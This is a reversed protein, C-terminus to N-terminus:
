PAAQLAASSQIAPQKQVRKLRLAKEELLNWSAYAISYTAPISLLMLQVQTPHLLYVLLQQIPFGWIYIGYSLDGLRRVLGLVPYNLTGFYVVVPPLLLIALQSYGGRRLIFALVLLGIGVVIARTRTSPLPCLALTAGGFFLGSFFVLNSYELLTNSFTIHAHQLHLGLLVATAAVMAPLLVRRNHRLFFFCALVIYLLFEYGVTWLSGNISNPYPNTAFVGNIGEQYRLVINLAYSYFSPHTFYAATSQHALFYGVMMCVVVVVLLAPFVRIIRKFFYDGIDRSRLLSNFILYGSIVFFGHVALTSMQARGQSLHYMLDEEPAGVLPFSHTYLVLTAFLLRLFDFNNAHSAPTSTIKTTLTALTLVIWLYLRRVAQERSLLGAFLSLLCVWYCFCCM